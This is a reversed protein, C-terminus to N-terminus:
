KNLAQKNSAKTAKTAHAFKEATATSAAREPCVREKM